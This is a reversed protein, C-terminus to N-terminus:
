GRLYKWLSMAHILMLRISHRSDRHWKHIVEAGPYYMVKSIANVRRSLDADELYMFYKEDFGGLSQLLETRIVLFCGQAFPVQFEHSYDMDAMNHYRQREKNINLTREIINQLTIERRYANQLQGSESIVRPICMGVDPRSDMYSIISGIADSTVLIDPNVIAHYRSSIKGLVLNHGAGFGVNRPSKIYCAGISSLREAPINVQMTSNDILYIERSISPDMHATISELAQMPEDINNYMVVSISIDTM